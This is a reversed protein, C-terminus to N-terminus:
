GAVREPSCIELIADVLTLQLAIPVEVSREEVADVKADGVDVVLDPGGEADKLVIRPAPGSRRGVNRVVNERQLRDGVLERTKGTVVIRRHDLLEIREIELPHHVQDVAEVARAGM